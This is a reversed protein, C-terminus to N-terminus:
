NGNRKFKYTIDEINIVPNAFKEDNVWTIKKLKQNTTPSDLPGLKEDYHGIKIYDYLKLNIMAPFCDNGLYVARKINPYKTKSHAMLKNLAQIDGSGGLLCVCSIGNYDEILGDFVENTLENGIDEQLYPTHCNKCKFPCQSISIVLSIEDPIEMFGLGFSVYKLM